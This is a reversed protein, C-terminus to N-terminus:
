APTRASRLLSLRGYGSDQYLWLSGRRDQFRAGLRGQHLVYSQPDAGAVSGTFRPAYDVTLEWRRSHVGLKVEPSTEADLTPGVLGGAGRTGIQTRNSFDLTGRLATVALIASLFLSM